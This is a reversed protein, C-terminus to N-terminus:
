TTPPRRTRIASRCYSIVSNTTSCRLRSRRCRPSFGRSGRVSVRRRAESSSRCPPLRPTSWGATVYVEDTPVNNYGGTDGGWYAASDTTNLKQARSVDLGFGTFDASTDHTWMGPVQDNGAANASGDGIVLVFGRAGNMKADANNAEPYKQTVQAAASHYALKYAATGYNTDLKMFDLGWQALPQNGAPNTASESNLGIWWAVAAPNTFDFEYPMPDGHWWNGNAATTFYNGAVGQAVYQCGHGMAAWEWVGFHFHEGQLTSIMSKPDPFATTDMTFCVYHAPVRRM